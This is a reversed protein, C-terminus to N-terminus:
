DITTMMWDITTMMFYRSLGVRSCSDWESDSMGVGSYL